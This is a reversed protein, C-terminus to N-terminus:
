RQRYAGVSMLTTKIHPKQWEHPVIALFEDPSNLAGASRLDNYMSVISTALPASGGRRFDDADARQQWYNQDGLGPSGDASKPAKLRQLIEQARQNESLERYATENLFYRPYIRRTNKRRAM